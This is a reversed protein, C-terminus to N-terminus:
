HSRQFRKEETDNHYDTSNNLRKNAVTLLYSRVPHVFVAPVVDQLIASQHNLICTVSIFAHILTHRPVLQALDLSFSNFQTVKIICSWTRANVSECPATYTNRTFRNEM